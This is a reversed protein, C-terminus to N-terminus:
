SIFTCFSAGTGKVEVGSSLEDITMVSDQLGLDRAVGYLADAWEGIKKWLVLCQGRDKDLWQANGACM